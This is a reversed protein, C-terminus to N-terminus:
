TDIPLERCLLHFPPLQKGSAMSDVAKVIARPSLTKPIFGAAGMEIATTATELSAMGSILGVPRNQNAALMHDLGELGNMGPMNYDLLVVDFPGSEEVHTIAAPLNSASWIEIPGGQDLIACITERVLDHDDAILIRKKNEDPVRPRLPLVAM